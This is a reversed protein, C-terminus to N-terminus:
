RGIKGRLDARLRKPDYAIGNKFVLEIHGIQAIDEDPRGDILLLDAQKGPALTGVRDDIGQFRAGSLTAIRIVELPTFGADVLLKLAAHNGPGPVTGGWGTPDTGVMLTGGAEAFAKEFRMEAALLKAYRARLEPLRNLRALRQLAWLQSQENLMALDDTAPFWDVVGAAFVALTSTIAVKHRVLTAILETIEPGDPRLALLANGAAEGGPCADQKKDPVFDTAVIVGHELNDIGAAAAEHFTVSCLHGTVKIGRKHAEDIAAALAAQSLNMYIKFSTAGADAWFDVIVRARNPDTIPVLQYAFGGNGELFPATVQIDPGVVKGERIWRAAQIDDSASFTGATRITTAGYALYAKPSTLSESLYSPIEALPDLFLLHEHMMVLGPMASRGKGDIVVDAAEKAMSALPGIAAIRGDRILISQGVKAPAGTGDIVRVDDIRIAPADHVVYQTVRKDFTAARQALTIGPALTIWALLLGTVLPRLTRPVTSANM